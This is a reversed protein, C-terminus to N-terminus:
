FLRSLRRSLWWRWFSAVRRLKKLWGDGEDDPGDHWHELAQGLDRMDFVQRCAPCKMLHDQESTPTWGSPRGIFEDHPLRRTRGSPFDADDIIAKM